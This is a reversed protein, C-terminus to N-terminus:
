LFVSAGILRRQWERYIQNIQIKKSNRLSAELWVSTLTPDMLDPQLKSSVEKHVYVVLRILGTQSSPGVKLMHDPIPQGM